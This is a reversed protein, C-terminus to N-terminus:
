HIPINRGEPDLRRAISAISEPLRELHETEEYSLSLMREHAPEREIDESDDLVEDVAESARWFGLLV